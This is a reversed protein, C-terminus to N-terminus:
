RVFKRGNRVYIGRSAAAGENGVRVGDLRYLPSAAFENTPRLIGTETDGGMFDFTISKDDNVRINTIPFRSVMDEGVYNKYSAISTVNQSGPYPDGLLRVSLTTGDPQVVVRAKGSSKAAYGSLATVLSMVLLLYIKEDYETEPKM